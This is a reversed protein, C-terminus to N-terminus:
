VKAAARVMAVIGARLSEPLRDWALAVEALDQPTEQSSQMVPADGTEPGHNFVGSAPGYDSTIYQPSDSKSDAADALEAVPGHNPRVTYRLPNNQSLPRNELIQISQPDKSGQPIAVQGNFSGHAKSVGFTAEPHTMQMVPADGSHGNVVARLVEKAPMAPLAPVRAALNHLRVHAYRNMTLVPTSHRALVQAEKVSAGSAVVISIFTHRAGHFDVIRGESDQAM